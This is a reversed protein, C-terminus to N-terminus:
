APPDNSCEAAILYWATGDKAIACNFTGSTSGVNVFINHAVATNPTSTVSRFTVTKPTNKSWSGTFTCMRVVKGTNGQVSATFSIGGSKRDGSEVTRVTKAIREAAQRTFTVRETSAPKGGPRQPM